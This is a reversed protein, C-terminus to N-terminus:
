KKGTPKIGGVVFMFQGWWNDPVNYLNGPKPWNTWYTDNFYQTYVTQISPIVPLEEFFGALAQAYLSKAESSTPSVDNLKNIVTSYSPSDLRTDYQTSASKPEPVYYQTTYQDYLQTPDLIEGCNWQSQIQYNGNVQANTYVAPALYKTSSSIGQKQLENSLLVGIEYEAPNASTPDVPTIIDWVLPKGQWYRKGDSHKTAGLSDLISAAKAPDYALKYKSLVSAEDWKANSQYAAWPYAAPVTKTPWISSAIKERDVLYSIAWRAKPNALLGNKPNCNIRFARTCPDPFPTVVLNKYGQRQLLSAHQADISAVDIEGRKFQEYDLDASTPASRYVVYKPAPDLKSKNWYNPDKEWIYMLDNPLTEKFKYPGTGVPPNFKFKLPNQNAWIHKPMPTFASVIGVIFNYHFRPQPKPFKMSITHPDPASPKLYQKGYTSANLLAPYKQYMELTYLYDASTVPKGDSWHAKPDLQISLETYDSNYKWGTALWPVLKGEALNLYFPYEQNIIYLGAQYQNGNPIFNNFSNFVTFTSQDMVLTEARPTPVISSGGGTSTQQQGGAANGGQGGAANGATGQSGGGQSGGGQSGGGGTGAGAGAGAGCADLLGGILAVNAAAGSGKLLQRRGFASYFMFDQVNFDEPGQGRVEDDGSGPQTTMARRRTARAVAVRSGSPM